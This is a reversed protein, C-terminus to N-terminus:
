AKQIPLLRLWWDSLGFKILNKDAIEAGTKEKGKIPLAVPFSCKSLLPKHFRRLCSHFVLKSEDVLLAAITKTYYIWSIDGFIRLNYYNVIWRLSNNYLEHLNM